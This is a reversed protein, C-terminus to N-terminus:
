RGRRAGDGQLLRRGDDHGGEHVAGLQYTRGALTGDIRLPDGAGARLPRLHEQERDAVFLEPHLGLPALAAELVDGLSNGAILHSAALVDLIARHWGPDLREVM